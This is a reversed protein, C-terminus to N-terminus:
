SAGAKKVRVEVLATAWGSSPSKYTNFRRTGADPGDEAFAAMMQELPDIAVSRTAAGKPQIPTDLTPLELWHFSTTDRTAFVKILDTGEEYGELLSAQLPIDIKDGPDLPEFDGSFEPYIQEVAWDPTMDMVTINLIRSPDNPDRPNPRMNNRIRLFTWEGVELEPTNGPDAFPEAQIGDVPDYDKQVGLLEVSLARVAPSKDDLNDLEQVNRYKVLHVLRQAIKSAANEEKIGVRPRLSIAAGASDWIDYFYEGQELDVTENPELHKIEEGEHYVIAVQFETPGEEALRVFAGGQAKIAGELAVKAEGAPMYATVLRQLKPNSPDLLVAKAGQEIDEDKKLRETITAWSNVDGLDAIEALAQRRDVQTFDASDPPYVAFQAGKRLGQAQGANLRVRDAEVQMVTVAYAPQVRDSGFVARDGEGQLQPTQRDFQSHVNALIRDHLM